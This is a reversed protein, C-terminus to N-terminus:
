KVHPAIVRIPETLRVSVIVSKLLSLNYFVVRGCRIDCTLPAPFNSFYKIALTLTVNIENPNYM